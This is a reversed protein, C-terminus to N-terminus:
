SYHTPRCGKLAKQAKKITNALAANGSARAAVYAAVLLEWIRQNSAKPFKRRLQELYDNRISQRGKAMNFTKCLQVVGITILGAQGVAGAVSSGTIGAAAGGGIGIGVTGGGVGAAGLLAADARCLSSLVFGSPDTAIAPGNLVYRYLNTDGASFGSPDESIFRGANPDYYRARNYYLGIIGDWERGAFKFRDGGSGSESGPVIGGFTFYNVHYLSNGNADVIQRISGINDTLYWATSNGNADTRALLQDPENGYLYRTTLTQGTFDAYANAGDYVTWQIAGSGVQMGIRRDFVDYTFTESTTTGGRNVSASAMRNRFDWSYSYTTLVSNEYGWKSTLNGENDYTYTYQGDTTLRNGPGPAGYTQSTSGFSASSRNGNLDQQQANAYSYNENYSSNSAAVGALQNLADYTYTFTLAGQSDQESKTKLNQALDYGYTYAALTVSGTTSTHGISQVLNRQTYTLATNVQNGGTAATRSINTLRAGLDYQLTVVPHDTAGGVNMLLSTLRDDADYAFTISGSQSLNDLVRTRNGVGDYVSTLVVHPINLTNANDRSIVNGRSDYVMGYASSNDSASTLESAADYGYNATYTVASGDKWQETILRGVDDYIFHRDRHNGSLLTDRDHIDMINGANDYDYTSVKGNADTVLHVRNMADYQFQTTNSGSSLPTPDTISTRNSAPDYTMTIFGGTPLQVWLVRGLNDVMYNTVNSLEDQASALYNASNYGLTVTPNTSPTPADPPYSLGTVKSHTGPDYYFNDTLNNGDTQSQLFGDDSWSYTLVPSQPPSGVPPETVSQSCQCRAASAGYYAMTTTHGNADRFSTLQSLSNYTSREYNGDPLVAVTVNALSDFFDRTARDLPDETLWALGNNDRHIVTEDLLPDLAETSHGFGSWDLTNLWTKGNPDAYNAQAQVALTATEDGPAVLGAVQQAVLSETTNDARTVTSIRGSVTSYAFTTTNGDPDAESILKSSSDYGYGLTPVPQSYGPDPETILTLQTHNAGYAFQTKRHTSLPPVVAPDTVTKLKGSADYALTLTLGVYDTIAILQRPNNTNWIFGTTRYELQDFISTQYGANDFTIKSGDSLTRTYTVNADCTQDPENLTLTSTDGLPTVFTQNTPNYAFWLSQGGPRELMAGNAGCSGQVWLHDLTDLSWGAGFPSAASNVIDVFATQPTQVTSNETVDIEYPYRGTSLGTADGQLAIALIDGLNLLHTDYISTGQTVGNLKLTATVTSGTGPTQSLQYFETFIPRPNAALSSYDLQLPDVAPNYAPLTFQTTVEGTAQGLSYNQGDIMEQDPSVADPPVLLPFSPPTNPRSSWRMSDTSYLYFHFSQTVQQPGPNVTVTITDQNLDRGGFPSWTFHLHYGNSVSAGTAEPANSLDWVYNNSSVAAGSVQAYLDMTWTAFSHITAGSPLVLGSNADLVWLNTQGTPPPAGNPVRRKGNIQEAPSVGGTITAVSQRNGSNGGQPVFNILALLSMEDKSASGAPAVPAGGSDAGPSGDVGAVDPPMASGIGADFTAAASASGGDVFRHRGPPQSQLPAKVLDLTVLEIAALLDDKLGPLDLAPRLTSERLIQILSRFAPGAARQPQADANSISLPGASPVTAFPLQELRSATVQSTTLLASNAGVIGISSLTQSPGMSESPPTRAELTELSLYTRLRKWWRPNQARM